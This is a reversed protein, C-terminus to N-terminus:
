QRYYIRYNYLVNDPNFDTPMHVTTWLDEYINGTKDIKSLIYYPRYHEAGILTVITKYLINGESDTWKENITYEGKFAPIDNSSRSYEYWTGESKVVIKSLIGTEDYDPNTWIGFLKEDEKTVYAKKSTSCSGVVLLVAFVLILISVLIRIKM